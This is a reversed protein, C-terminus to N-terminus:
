PVAGSLGGAPVPPRGGGQIVFMRQRPILEARLPLYLFFGIPPLFFLVMLWAM